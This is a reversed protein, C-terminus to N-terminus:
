LKVGCCVTIKGGDGRNIEKVMQIDLVGAYWQRIAGIDPYTRVHSVSRFNPVSFVVVMGQPINRLVRHDDLHEFVEIATVVNFNDRRLGCNEWVASNYASAHHVHSQVDVPCSELAKISFDFGACQYGHDLMRKMLAGTGCGVDLIRMEGKLFPIDHLMQMAADYVDNFRATNYPRSYIADYYSASEEKQRQATVKSM